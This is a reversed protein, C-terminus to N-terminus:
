GYDPKGGHIEHRDIRSILEDGAVDESLAYTRAENEWRVAMRRLSEREKLDHSVPMDYMMMFRELIEIKTRTIHQARAFAENREKFDLYTHVLTRRLLRRLDRSAATDLTMMGNSRLLRTGNFIELPMAICLFDFDDFRCKNKVGELACYEAYSLYESADRALLPSGGQPKRGRLMSNWASQSYCAARHQQNAPIVRLCNALITYEQTYPSFKIPVSPSSSNGQGDSRYFAAIYRSVRLYINAM